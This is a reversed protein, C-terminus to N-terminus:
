YLNSFYNYYVLLNHTRRIKNLRNKLKLRGVNANIFPCVYQQQNNNPLGSSECSGCDKIDMVCVNVKPCAVYEGLCRNAYSSQLNLTTLIILLVIKFM